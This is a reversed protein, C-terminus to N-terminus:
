KAAPAKPGQDGTLAYVAAYEDAYVPQWLRWDLQPYYRTLPARLVMVRAAFTAALWAPDLPARGTRMAELRLANKADWRLMYTPDLGVLYHQRPGDYFLEPFDDWWLPVVTEGEKLNEAMWHAAGRFRPPDNRGGVTVAYAASLLVTGLLLTMVGAALVAFGAARQRAFAGIRTRTEGATLDRAALAAALVSLPASYEVFRPFVWTGLFAAWAATLVGLAEGSLRRPTAWGALGLGALLFTMPGHLQLFGRTSYPALERGVEVAALSRELAAIRVVQFYTALSELTLPSYPHVVLGALVGGAAAGLLRPDAAEGSLRKGAMFALVLAPLIPPFSYSWSLLFALAFLLTLEGKLLARLGGLVILIALVHPRVFSVRLLFPGAAGALLLTFAWPAPAGASRLLLHFGAFVAASLLASFLLAGRLPEPGRAFPSMLAHYLFEKDCFREKWPSAQTWPFGRSLGREPLMAALRAHYYGARDTLGGGGRHLATFAAAFLLFTLAPGAWRRLLPSM